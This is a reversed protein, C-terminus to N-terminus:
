VSERMMRGCVGANKGRGGKGASVARRSSSRLIGSSFLSALIRSGSKLGVTAAASTLYVSLNPVHSENRM